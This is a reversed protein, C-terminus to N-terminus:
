VSVAQRQRRITEKTKQQVKNLSEESMKNKGPLTNVISISELDPDETNAFVILEHTAKVWCEEIAEDLKKNSIEVIPLGLINTIPRCLFLKNNIRRFSPFDAVAFGEIIQGFYDKKNEQRDFSYGYDISPTNINSRLRKTAENKFTIADIFAQEDWFHCEMSVDDKEFVLSFQMYLGKEYGKIAYALEKADFLGATKLLNVTEQTVLLQIDIDSTPKVSYNQGYSLSGSVILGSVSPRIYERFWDLLKLRKSTADISVQKEPLKFDLELM